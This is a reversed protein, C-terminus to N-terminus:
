PIIRELEVHHINTIATFVRQHRIILKRLSKKVAKRSQFGDQGIGISLFVQSGAWVRRLSNSQGILVRWDGRRWKTLIYSIRAPRGGM